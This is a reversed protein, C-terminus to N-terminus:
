GVRNGAVFCRDRTQMIRQCTTTHVQHVAALQTDVRGSVALGILQQLQVFRGIRFQEYRNVALVRVQNGVVVQRQPPAHGGVPDQTAGVPITHREGILAKDM